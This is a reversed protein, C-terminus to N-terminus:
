AWRVLVLSFPVLQHLPEVSNTAVRFILKRTSYIGTGIMKSVNQRCVKFVRCPPLLLLVLFLVSIWGVHYGLPSNKEVPAGIAVVADEYGSLAVTEVDSDQKIESKESAISM